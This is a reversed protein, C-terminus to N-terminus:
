RSATLSQSRANRRPPMGTAVLSPKLGVAGPEHEGRRQLKAHERLMLQRVQEQGLPQSRVIKPSPQRRAHRASIPDHLQVVLPDACRGQRRLESGGVVAQAEEM